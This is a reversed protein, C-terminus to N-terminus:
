VVEILSLNRQANGVAVYHVEISATHKNIFHDLRSRTTKFKKVCQWCSFIKKTSSIIHQNIKVQKQVTMLLIDNHCTSKNEQIVATYNDFSYTQYITFYFSPQVHKTYYHQELDGICRFRKICQPCYSPRIKPNNAIGAKQVYEQKVMKKSKHLKSTRTDTLTVKTQRKNDISAKM